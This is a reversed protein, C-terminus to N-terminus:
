IYLEHLYKAHATCIILQILADGKKYILRANYIPYIKVQNSDM